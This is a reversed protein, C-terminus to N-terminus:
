EMGSLEAESEEDTLGNWKRARAAILKQNEPDVGMRGRWLHPVKRAVDVASTMIDPSDDDAATGKAGNAELIADLDDPQMVRGYWDGTPYSVVCGAFRHGGLHSSTHVTVGPHDAKDLMRVLRPGCGACRFDREVHCCVVLHTGKIPTVKLSTSSPLIPTPVRLLKGVKDVARFHVCSCAVVCTPFPSAVPPLTLRFAGDSGCGQRLRRVRM